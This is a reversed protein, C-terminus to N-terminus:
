REFVVTGAEVPHDIVLLESGTKKYSILKAAIMIDGTAAATMIVAVWLWFVSAAFISIVFPVIGLLMLPMLTGILHSRKQLAVTCCCYPALHKMDIGFAIDSFTAPSFIVWSIGHVLEHVVTLVLVAAIVSLPMFSGLTEFPVTGNVKIFIVAYILATVALFVISLTNAANMSITLMTERYGEAALRQETEHFSALRKEEAETLKREKAM